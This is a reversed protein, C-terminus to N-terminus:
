ATGWCEFYRARYEQHRGKTMGLTEVKIDAGNNTNGDEDVFDFGAAIAAAVEEEV